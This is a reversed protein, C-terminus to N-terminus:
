AGRTYAKAASPGVPTTVIVPASGAAGAPMSAVIKSDSVFLFDAAPTGGISVATVGTFGAGTITVLQGAAQATELVTSIIPVSAVLGSKFIEFIGPKGDVAPIVAEDASLIAVAIPLETFAAPDTGPAEGLTTETNPLWFGLSGSNDQFYVFLAVEVPVVVGPVIYGGTTTDFDGNFALDLVDQDFQLAPVNVGWAVSGYVARVGDVLFTDLSEKEGGEKSFAVTNAKSTHGLNTWGSPAAGTLSFAALPNVPPVTNKPAHFVAGHGPIVLKSADVSV